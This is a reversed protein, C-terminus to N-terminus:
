GLARLEDLTRTSFTEIGDSLAHIEDVVAILMDQEAATFDAGSKTLGALTRSNPPGVAYTWGNLLGHAVAAAIVGDQDQDALGSWKMCGTNTLGWHVVPDTLMLGGESYHDIWEQNYTRYLLSPRTYRIHVALAFGTDCITSLQFLLKAVADTKSSQRM